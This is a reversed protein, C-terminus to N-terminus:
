TAAEALERAPKKPAPTFEHAELASTSEKLSNEYVSKEEVFYQFYGYQHHVQVEILEVEHFDKDKLKGSHVLKNVMAMQATEAVYASNFWLETKFDETEFYNQPLNGLWKKNQPRVAYIRDCMHLESIIFQRNYAGDVLGHPNDRHEFGYFYLWLAGAVAEATIPMYKEPGGIEGVKVGLFDEAAKNIHLYARGSKPHLTNFAVPIDSRNFSHSVRELDERARLPVYVQAPLLRNLMEEPHPRTMPTLWRSWYEQVAPRFIGPDGFWAIWLTNLWDMPPPFKNDERVQEMLQPELDEGDLWRATWGIMGSTCTIMSPTVGLKRAAQLFGVGHANFGGLGGLAFGVKGAAQKAM